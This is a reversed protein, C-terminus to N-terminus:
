DFRHNLLTKGMGNFFENAKMKGKGESQCEKILIYGGSVAVKLANAQLGILTGLPHTHTEILLSAQIIKLKKGDILGYGIPWPSLGRIHNYVILADRQFSIYEEEAQINYAYTVLAEDQKFAPVNAQFLLDFKAKLLDSAVIKLKDHLSGLTDDLDILIARQAIIDGADMQKIMKMLSIGTEKEGEIIAKHIPAGGRYKPLLSAHLNVCGYKPLNLISEPIFQGYACTVILDSQLNAIEEKIDKIKIPQLIPLHHDLAFAKVPSYTVIHKRGVAKDSQTIVAVIECDLQTLCTLISLAFDPTGMFIIKRMEDEKSLTM